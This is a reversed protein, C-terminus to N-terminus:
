AFGWVDENFCPHDSWTFFPQTTAHPFYPELGQHYYKYAWQSTELRAADDIQEDEEKLDTPHQQGSAWLPISPGIRASRHTDDPSKGQQITRTITIMVRKRYWPRVPKRM